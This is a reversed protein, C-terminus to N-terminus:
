ETGTKNRSAARLEMVRATKKERDRSYRATMSSNSHAAAHRVDEISAVDTGETIAGARSDMNKVTDPLGCARAVDRWKRRFFHNRWPLGTREEVILPGITPREGLLALEEMVMPALRLNVTIEKNKKSTEHVLILDEDIESWRIGRLWKIEYRQDIVETTGLENLPVWEGIVDKQRLTCEFQFAQALAISHHGMEHAKARLMNAQEFTILEDRPEGMKFKMGSILGRVRACDDDELLTAGFSLVIRLMSILAHARPIGGKSWEQHWALVTRPRIDKVLEGGHDRVVVRTLTDYNVRTVYRVKQYPSVPDSQYCAILDRLTGNFAGAKLVGGHAWTLMDDQFLQCRHAIFPALEKATDDSVFCIRTSKPEYGRTVLDTRAQWRAEWGGKRPKFALGPANEFKPPATREIV